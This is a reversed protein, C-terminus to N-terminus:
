TKSPRPSPSPETEGHMSAPQRLAHWSTKNAKLEKLAYHTERWRIGNRVLALLM